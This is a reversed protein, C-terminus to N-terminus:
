KLRYLQGLTVEFSLRLEIGLEKRAVTIECSLVSHAHQEADKVTFTLKNRFTLRKLQVNRKGHRRTCSLSIRDILHTAKRTISSLNAASELHFGHHCKGRGGEDCERREGGKIKQISFKPVFHLLPSRYICSVCVM